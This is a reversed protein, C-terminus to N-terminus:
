MDMELSWYISKLVTFYRCIVSIVFGKKCSKKIKYSLNIEPLIVGHIYLM